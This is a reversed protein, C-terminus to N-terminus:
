VLDNTMEQLVQPNTSIQSTDFVIVNNSTGRTLQPHYDDKINKLVLSDHGKGRAANIDSEVTHKWERGGMDMVEPNKLLVYREVVMPVSNQYDFTPKNAYSRATRPNDTFSVGINGTISTDQFGQQIGGYLQIFLTNDPLAEPDNDYYGKRNPDFEPLFRGDPTGHYVRVISPQGAQVDRLERVPVPPTEPIDQQEQEELTDPIENAKKYWTKTNALQYLPISEDVKEVLDYIKYDPDTLSFGMQEPVKEYARRSKHIPLRAWKKRQQDFHTLYAHKGEAIAMAKVLNLLFPSWQKTTNELWKAAEKDKDSPKSSMAIFNDYDADRQLNNIVINEEGDYSCRAYALSGRHHPTDGM